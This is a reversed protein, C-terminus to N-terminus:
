ARSPYVEPAVAALAATAWSIIAAFRKAPGEAPAGSRGMSRDHILSPRASVLDDDQLQPEDAPVNM